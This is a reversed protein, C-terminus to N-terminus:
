ERDAVASLDRHVEELAAHLSRPSEVRHRAAAIPADGIAVTEGGAERTAIMAPEDNLSDGFYVPFVGRTLRAIIERVATSKDWGEKLTVEYAECVNLYHLGSFGRMLDHFFDRLEANTAPSSDRHHVSFGFPKPEVWVGPFRSAAEHLRDRAAQLQSRTAEDAPSEIREGCLDLEAGSSGGYYVGGLRVKGTVDALSRGSIVAVAVRELATLARL